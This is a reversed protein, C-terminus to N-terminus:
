KEVTSMTSENKVNNVDYNNDVKGTNKKLVDYVPKIEPNKLTKFFNDVKDVYNDVIVTILNTKIM